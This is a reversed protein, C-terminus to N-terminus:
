PERSVFELRPMVEAERVWMILIDSGRTVDTRMIIMPFIQKLKLRKKMITVIMRVARPESGADFLVEEIAPTRSARPEFMLRAKLFVPSLYKKVSPLLMFLLLVVISPNAITEKAPRRERRGHHSYREKVESIANLVFPLKKAAHRLWATYLKTLMVHTRETKSGNCCARRFTTM